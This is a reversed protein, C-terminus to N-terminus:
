RFIDTKSANANYKQSFATASSLNTLSGTFNELWVVAKPCSRFPNEEGGLFPEKKSVWIDAKSQAFTYSLLRTSGITLLPTNNKKKCSLTEWCRYHVYFSFYCICVSFAVWCIKLYVSCLLYQLSLVVFEHLSSPTPYLLLISICMWRYIYM